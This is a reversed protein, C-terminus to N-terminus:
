SVCVSFHSQILLVTKNDCIKDPLVTAIFDMFFGGDCDLNFLCIM